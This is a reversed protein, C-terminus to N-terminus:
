YLRDRVHINDTAFGSGSFYHNGASLYRLIKDASVAHLCDSMRQAYKACYIAKFQYLIHTQIEEQGNRTFYYTVYDSLEWADNLDTQSLAYSRVSPANGHSTSLAANLYVGVPRLGELNDFIKIEDMHTHAALIGTISAQHADISARFQNHYTNPWFATDSWFYPKYINDGPPIHMVLLVSDHAAEAKRLQEELWDLQDTVTSKAYAYQSKSFMVSNLGILRLHPKLYLSYYGNTTRREVLCPYTKERKCLKGTSLFSGMPWVMKFVDLPSRAGFQSKETRFAGYNKELADNNGFTYVVPIDPFAIHLTTFVLNEAEVVEEASARQHGVLDGLLLIFEPQPIFGSQISAKIKHVLQQYTVPDLDNQITADKPAFEMLHERHPNLHIDSIVLFHSTAYTVAHWFLFIFTWIYRM